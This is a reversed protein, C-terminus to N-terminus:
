IYGVKIRSYVYEHLLDSLVFHENLRETLFNAKCFQLMGDELPDCADHHGDEPNKKGLVVYEM